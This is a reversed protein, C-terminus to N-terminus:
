SNKSVIDHYNAPMSRFKKEMTTSNSIQPFLRRLFPFLQDPIKKRGPLVEDLILSFPYWIQQDPLEIKNIPTLSEPIICGPFFDDFYNILREYDESNMIRMGTLNDGKFHSLHKEIIHRHPSQGPVHKQAKGLRDLLEMFLEKYHSSEYIEKAFIMLDTEETEGNVLKKLYESTTNMIEFYRADSGIRVRGGGEDWYGEIMVQLFSRENVPVAEGTAIRHQNLEAFETGLEKFEGAAYKLKIFVSFQFSEYPELRSFIEKWIEYHESLGHNRAWEERMYALNQQDKVLDRLMKDTNGIIGM